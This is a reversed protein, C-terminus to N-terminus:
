DRGIEQLHDAYTGGEEVDNKTENLLDELGINYFYDSYEQLHCLGCRCEGHVRCMGSLFKANNSENNENETPIPCKLSFIDLFSM